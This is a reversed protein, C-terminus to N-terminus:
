HSHTVLPGICLSPASECEFSPLVESSLRMNSRPGLSHRSNRPKKPRDPPIIAPFAGAAETFQRHFRDIGFAQILDGGMPRLHSKRKLAVPRGSGLGLSLQEFAIVAGHAAIQLGSEMIWRGDIIQHLLKGDREDAAPKAMDSGFAATEAVVDLAHEKMQDALM